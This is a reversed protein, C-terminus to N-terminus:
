CQACCSISPLSMVPSMPSQKRECSGAVGRGRVDIDRHGVCDESMGDPGVMQVKRIRKQTQPLFFSFLRQEATDLCFAQLDVAPWIDPIALLNASWCAPLLLWAKSNRHGLCGAEHTNSEIGLLVM